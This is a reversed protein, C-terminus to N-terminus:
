ASAPRRLHRACMLATLMVVAGGALVSPAPGLWAFGIGYLVPGLAHGLFFSISHASMATARATTSLESAEVQICGHLSFFGIGMVTYLALQVPWAPNLAVGIFMAACLAGGGLMLERAQWRSALRAVALSYVMGGVSFGGLVIGAISARPEGAAVLM